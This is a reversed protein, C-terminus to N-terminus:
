RRRPSVRVIGGRTTEYLPTEPAPRMSMGSVPHFGAEALVEAVSRGVARSRSRAASRIREANGERDVPPAGYGQRAWHTAHAQEVMRRWHSDSASGDDGRGGQILRFQQPSVNSPRDM